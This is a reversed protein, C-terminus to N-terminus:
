ASSARSSGRWFILGTNSSIDTQSNDNVITSGTMYIKRRPPFILAAWVATPWGV